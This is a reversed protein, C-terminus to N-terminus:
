TLATPPARTPPRGRASSTCDPECPGEGHSAGTQQGGTRARHLAQGPGQADKRAVPMGQLGGYGAFEQSGAHEASCVGPLPPLSPPPERGVALRLAAIATRTEGPCIQMKTPSVSSKELQAMVASMRMTLHGVWAEPGRPCGQLPHHLPPLSAPGTPPPCCAPCAPSAPRSASAQALLPIPIPGRPSLATRLSRTALLSATGPQGSPTSSALEEGPDSSGPGQGGLGARTGPTGARAGAAPGPPCLGHERPWCHTGSWGALSLPGDSCHCPSHGQSSSPPPTAGIVQLVCDSPRPAQLERGQPGERDPGPPAPLLSRPAQPPSRTQSGGPLAEGAPCRPSTARPTQPWM